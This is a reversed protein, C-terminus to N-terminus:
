LKGAKDPPIVDSVRQFGRYALWIDGIVSIIVLVICIRVCAEDSLAPNLNVSRTPTRHRPVVPTSASPPPVLSPNTYTASEAAEIPSEAAEQIAAMLEEPSVDALEDSTDSPPENTQLRPVPMRAGCQRCTAIRGAFREAISYFSGCTPCVFEIPMLL